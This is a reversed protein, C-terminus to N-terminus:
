LTPSGPLTEGLSIHGIGKYLVNGKGFQDISIAHNIGDIYVKNNGVYDQGRGYPTYGGTENYYRFGIHIYPKPVYTM